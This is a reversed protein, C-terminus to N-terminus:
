LGTYYYVHKYNGEISRRWWKEARRLMEGNRCLCV